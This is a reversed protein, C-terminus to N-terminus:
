LRITFLLGKYLTHLKCHVILSILHLEYLYWVDHSNASMVLNSQDTISDYAPGERDVTHESSVRRQGEGLTYDIYVKKTM